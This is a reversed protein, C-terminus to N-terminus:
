HRLTGQMIQLYRSSPLAVAKGGQGGLCDSGSVQSSCAVSVALAAVLTIWAVRVM